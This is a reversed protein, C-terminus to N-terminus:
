TKSELRRCCFAKNSRNCNSCWRMSTCDGFDPSRNIHEQIEDKDTVKLKGDRDANVGKMQELDATILEQQEPTAEPISIKRNLV